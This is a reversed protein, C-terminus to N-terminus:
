NNIIVKKGNMVPASGDGQIIIAQSLEIDNQMVINAYNTKVAQALENENKVMTQGWSEQAVTCLLAIIYLLSKKM